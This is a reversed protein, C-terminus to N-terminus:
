HDVACLTGFDDLGNDTHHAGALQLLDGGIGLDQLHVLREVVAMEAGDVDNPRLRLGVIAYDIEIQDPVFQFTIVLENGVIKERIGNVGDRYTSGTEPGLDRHARVGPGLFRHVEIQSRDTLTVAAASVGAHAGDAELDAGHIGGAAGGPLDGRLQATLPASLGVGGTKPGSQGSPM